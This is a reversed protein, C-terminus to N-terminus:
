APSDMIQAYMAALRLRYAESSYREAQILGAVGMQAVLADDAEVRRMAAILASTDYPDVQIAADGGIEPLSSTNSTIVPTGLQMAELVPLGFGEYISPFVLARACRVLRTLLDRPLYQLRIITQDRSGRYVGPAGGAGGGPMLRLENESSWARAGVIVLPLSTQMSLYAEIVRGVNKKPEIAGFYLFYGRDVLGFIGEVAGSDEARDGTRPMRTTQYTNTVRNAADPYRELVDNRSSESVTCIHAAHRVCQEVIGAYDNKDDLTAYPLKLPVLDHFTYVNRSGVIEIPVPYTWHMVAPPDPLRVKTFRRTHHFRLYARDFLNEGSWLANFAPWSTGFARKEVRSTLPVRRVPTHGFARAFEIRRAWRSVKRLPDVPRQLGDFFQTERRTEDPSIKLGFVGEVQHGLRAIEAALEVGYTAVGTGSAMALNYGDVGIRLGAV